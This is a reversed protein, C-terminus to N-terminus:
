VWVFIFCGVQSVFIPMVSSFLQPLSSILSLLTVALLFCLTVFADPVDCQNMKEQTVNVSQAHSVQPLLLSCSIVHRAHCTPDILCSKRVRFGLTVSSWEVGVVVSRQFRVNEHM